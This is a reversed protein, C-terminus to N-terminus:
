AHTKKRAIVVMNDGLPLYLPIKALPSHGLIKYLFAAIRSEGTTRGLHLVYRLSLWKGIGFWRIPKLQEKALLQTLNDRHFFFLHQPPIYFTWRRGFLKAMASQTNGTAIVLIGDDKLFSSLKRLDRQPDGLHEFVDFLAIIDFSKPKYDVTHIAGQIIRKHGNLKGANQVAYASPDFGYADFGEDLALEVFFGMACGAELLKGRKKHKKIEALFKKMNRAIMPKDDKYDVFAGCEQKGTFYGKSYHNHLFKEYNQHLDTRALGCAEWRYISYGNKKLFLTTSIGCLYCKM